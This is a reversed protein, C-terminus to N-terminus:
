RRRRAGESSSPREGSGERPRAVASGGAADAPPAAPRASPPPGAPARREPAARQAPPGPAAESRPRAREPAQGGTAPASRYAGPARREERAPGAGPAQRIEQPAPAAGSRPRAQERAPGANAPTSRYAGPVRRSDPVPAPDPTSRPERAAPASYVPAGASGRREAPRAGQTAGQPAAVPDGAGASRGRPAVRVAREPARTVSGSRPSMEAEQRGAAETRRSQGSAPTGVAGGGASGSRPIARVAGTPAPSVPGRGDSVVSGREGQESARTRRDQAEPPTLPAAPAAGSRQRATGQVASPTAPARAPAPFRREQAAPAAPRVGDSRRDSGGVGAGLGARPVAYRGTSRIPAADRGVAYRVEPGRDQVVFSAHVRPDIRTSAVRTVHVYPASFHRRPVVTWAHWPDYRRGGYANVNVIQLVPRNNWGLASWSVYDPAYAWSVWAPGWQRGPIWYWAGASLGWRGYHHTPWGWPDAAIWTWGYPRLSEWRGRHYPRWGIQVRPYWVYGHVQEYQWTGYADLTSAYPRVDPPLYQASAGLRQARRDESWRDFADWAASNFVYPPSPAAGGRAFTREGARIYSRGAENVLEAGGRLVALEVEDRGLVAVRYEGPGHIQIWASPADIRYSIDRALGAISLRIRGQLLRVVEDSQFDLITNADLHLASGDAFLVEARGGQTRLRDGALLPMSAPQPDTEGDRELVVPGEVFAIHAPPEAGTAEQARLPLACACITAVMLLTSLLPRLM